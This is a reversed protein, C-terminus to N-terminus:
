LACETLSYIFAFKNLRIVVILRCVINLKLQRYCLLTFTFDPTLSSQGKRANENQGKLQPSGTQVQWVTVYHFKQFCHHANAKCITTRFRM